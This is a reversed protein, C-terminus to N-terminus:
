RMTPADIFSRTACVNSNGLLCREHCIASGHHSPIRHSRTTYTYINLTFWSRSLLVYDSRKTLCMSSIHCVNYPTCHNTNARQQHRQAFAVSASLLTLLPNNNASFCVDRFCGDPDRISVPIVIISEVRARLSLKGSCINACEGIFQKTTLNIRRELTHINDNTTM